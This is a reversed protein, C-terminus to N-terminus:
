STKKRMSEGKMDIRHANHVLRDLIADGLTLDGIADHWLNVPLQSTVLTSSQNHRDDMIELLDRRQSETM